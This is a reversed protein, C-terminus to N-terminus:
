LELIVGEDPLLGDLEALDRDPRTSLLAAGTVPLPAPDATFNLAVGLRRAGHSRAYCLVGEGAHLREYSGLSLAPEARRLAALSRVLALMSAPDREQAAASAVSSLPLFPTGTTFGRGPADDQWPIPIRVPDRGLGTGPNNIAWPDQLMHEPVDENLMGLEDGQWLTPTGRLTLLLMQAVRAQAPGVRSAIRARDHNGLVWNPWGGAPIMREYRDIYAAIHLPDWPAAILEFNFPLQFGDLAAGYYLMVEDLTGYAEGVLLRGGYEEALARMDRVIPFGDPQHSSFTRFLSRAPGEEFVWDPNAPNDRLRHDPTLHEAADVRFGDVGREYWIRMADLMAAKVDPNRWNLAPQERAYIHLYFQGTADDWTWAPGGFESVWNNPPSGDPRADRWVYWDRRAAARSSRSEVFWPHLDSSHAPVFDLLVKLGLGHAESVLADFDRLTGFLPEIGTFDTIDYGADKMPSPYIPSIWIAGAGLRAVHPLRARIGNLDGTGSGTSDQFARPYIQYIMGSQWWPASAPDIM